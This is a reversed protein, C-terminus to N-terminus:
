YIASVEFLVLCFSVSNMRTFISNKEVVQLCHIAELINEDNFAPDFEISNKGAKL